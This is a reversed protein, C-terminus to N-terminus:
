VSYDLSPLFQSLRRERKDEFIPLIPLLLTWILKGLDLIADALNSLILEM